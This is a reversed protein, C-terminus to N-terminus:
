SPKGEWAELDEDPLPEFFSKPVKVVGRLTGSKRRVARATIPVLRAVPKDGRAIVIEEGAHAREILNSLTTKAAHITVKV